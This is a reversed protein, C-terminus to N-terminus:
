IGSLPGFDDGAALAKKLDDLKLDNADGALPKELRVENEGPAEGIVVGLPDPEGNFAVMNRMRERGAKVASSLETEKVVKEYSAKIEQAEKELDEATCGILGLVADVKEMDLRQQDAVLRALDPYAGLFMVLGIAQMEERKKLAGNTDQHTTIVELKWDTIRQNRGNRGLERFKIDKIRISM